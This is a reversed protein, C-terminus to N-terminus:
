TLWDSYNRQEMGSNEKGHPRLRLNPYLRTKMKIASMQASAYSRAFDHLPFHFMESSKQIKYLLVSLIM